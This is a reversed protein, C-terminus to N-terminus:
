ETDISTKISKGAKSEAESRLNKRMKSCFVRIKPISSRRLYVTGRFVNGYTKKTKLFTTLHACSIFTFFTFLPFRSPPCRFSHHRAPSEANRSHPIRRSPTVPRAAKM